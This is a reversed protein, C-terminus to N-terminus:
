LLLDDDEVGLFLNKCPSFKECWVENDEYCNKATNGTFCCTRSKCAHECETKANDETRLANQNCVKHVIQMLDEQTPKSLTVESPTDKHYEEDYLAHCPDYGQCIHPHTNICPRIAYQNHAIMEPTNHTLCCQGPHCAGHCKLYGSPTSVSESSCIQPLDDPPPAVYQGKTEDNTNGETQMHLVGCPSYLGCTEEEQLFCSDKGAAMCCSDFSCAHECKDHGATTTISSLSCLLGLDNPPVQVLPRKEANDTDNLSFSKGIVVGSTIAVTFILIVSLVFIMYRTDQDYKKALLRVPIDREDYFEEEINERQHNNTQTPSKWHVSKTHHHNYDIHDDSDDIRFDHYPDVIRYRRDEPIIKQSFYHDFNSKDQEHFDVTEEERDHYPLQRKELGMVSDSQAAIASIDSYHRYRSPKLKQDKWKGMLDKIKGKLEYQSPSVTSSHQHGNQIKPHFGYMNKNKDTEDDFDSGPGSIQSSGPPTVDVRSMTEPDYQSSSSSYEEDLNSSPSASALIRLRRRSRRSLRLVPRKGM